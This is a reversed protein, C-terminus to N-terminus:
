KRERRAPHERIYKRRLAAATDLARFLSWTYAFHYVVVMAAIVAISLFFADFLTM